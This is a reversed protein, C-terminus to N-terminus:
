YSKRKKLFAEVDGEDVLCYLDIDSNEDHEDRGMSGKLFVAKVLPEEKLHDTIVRVAEEQKM